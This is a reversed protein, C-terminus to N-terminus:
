VEKVLLYKIHKADFYHKRIDDVIILNEGERYYKIANLFIYMDRPKPRDTIVYIKYLKKHKM